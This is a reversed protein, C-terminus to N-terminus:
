PSSLSVVTLCSLAWKSTVYSFVSGLNRVNSFGVSSSTTTNVSEAKQAAGTARALTEEAGVAFRESTTTLGTGQGTAEALARRGIERGLMSIHEPVTILAFRLLQYTKRPIFFLFGLFLSRLTSTADLSPSRLPVSTTSPLPHIPKPDLTSISPIVERSYFSPTSSAEM